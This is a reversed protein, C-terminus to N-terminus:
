PTTEWPADEGLIARWITAIANETQRVVTPDAELVAAIACGKYAEALAEEIHSRRIMKPRDTM